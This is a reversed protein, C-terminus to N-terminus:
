RYMCLSYHNTLPKDLAYRWVVIIMDRRSCEDSDNCKVFIMVASTGLTNSSPERWGM